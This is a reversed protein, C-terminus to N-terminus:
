LPIRLELITHKQFREISLKGKISQLRKIMDQRQQLNYLQQMDCLESNFEISYLLGTKEVTLHIECHKAGAQVLGRTTEKFLMFADHRVQMDPKLSIVKKDVLMAMQVGHRNNLSDIYEQMRAVSREMSDNEPSISWLMDDMVIIMNHSKSHIQEIFESSKKPDSVAKMKAMESLVNINNLAVNIEEHLNLAIDSRMKYVREKREMRAKDLAFLSGSIVLIMISYFWWSKWFPARIHINLTMHSGDEVGEANFTNVLLRYSGPPLYPYVLENNKDTIKWDRDLGELKYRIMYSTNYTLTSLGIAVSNENYALEIDKSKLLSDLPLSRNMLRFDTISLTPHSTDIKIADPDFVVMNATAGFIMRGDPLVYSGSLVFYDNRIGDIRNFKILFRNDIFLRYLGTTTSVWVYGSADKEMSQIFGSISQSTGIPVLQQQYRNYLQISSRTGIVVLSDNYDVMSTVSQEPLQQRGSKNDLHLTVEEASPDIVYLGETATGAWVYGNRDIMLKYIRVPPVAPFRSFGKEFKEKGLEADWKYLGGDQLVIWLNGNKDEQIERVWSELAPLPISQVERKEQDYKYLGDRGGMWIYNGRSSLCMTYILTITDEPFGKIDLPALNLNKDYRYLGDSWVGTLISGDLDQIFTIPAGNGPNGTIRSPHGINSFFEESPNFRFIGNNATSVWINRERDETIDTITVFEISRDDVYGNYVQQFEKDKELFKGLINVGSIWVSGDGQQLFQHVDHNQPVGQGFGYHELIPTQNQLNYCYVYPLESEEGAHWVRGQDDFFLKFPNTTTKYHDILREQETNRGSYSLNGTANNYVALGKEMLCMWYKETGPQQVFDVIRWDTPPTFFNGSASFDNKGPNYTLLEKGSLLLFVTGYEDTILRKSVTFPMLLAKDTIRVSARKFTFNATNFIGAQGDLTLLWLNNNKDILLQIISKAPLSTTDNPIPRFTKYRIGDYRQLGENTAIWIYGELDQATANVQYSILGTEETFHTFNYHVPDPPQVAFALAHAALSIFFILKKM